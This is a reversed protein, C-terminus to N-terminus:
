LTLTLGFYWSVYLDVAGAAVESTGTRADEPRSNMELVYRRLMASGDFGIDDSFRYHLGAFAEIGSGEMRPFWDVDSAEGFDGLPLRYGVGGRASIDGFKLGFDAAIRLLTYDFEPIRSQGEPDDLGSTMTGITSQLGIEHNGLPQRFRAGGYLESFNVPFEVDLTQDRVQGSFAAEYGAILGIRDKVPRAFPYVEVNFKYVWSNTTPARLRGYLDDVYSLTRYVLGANVGLVVTPWAQKSAEASADSGGEDAGVDSAADDSALTDDSPSSSTDETSDSGDKEKDEGAPQEPTSSQALLFRKRTQTSRSASATAKSTPLPDADADIATPDTAERVADDTEEVTGNDVNQSGSRMVAFPAPKAAKQKKAARKKPPPAEEEAEPAEERSGAGASPADLDVDGRPAPESAGAGSTLARDLRGQGSGKLEKVLVSLTPAEFTLANGRRAGDPDRITLTLEWGDRSEVASGAVFADIQKREAYASLVSAPDSARPPRSGIVTHGARKLIQAVRWRLPTARDGEFGLLAVRSGAAAESAMLLLAGLVCVGAQVRMSRGRTGNQVIESIAASASLPESKQSIELPEAKTWWV